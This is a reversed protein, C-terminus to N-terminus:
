CDSRSCKLTVHSGQKVSSLCEFAEPPDSIIMIDKMKKPLAKEIVYALLLEMLIHGPIAVLLAVATLFSAEGVFNLMLLYRFAVTCIGYVPLQFATVLFFEKAGFDLLMGSFFIGAPISIVLPLLVSYWSFGGFFGYSVYLCLVIGYAMIGLLTPLFLIRAIKGKLPTDEDFTIQRVLQDEVDFQFDSLLKIDLRDGALKVRIGKLNNNRMDILLYRKKSLTHLLIGDKWDDTEDYVSHHRCFAKLATKIDHEENFDKQIEAAIDAFTEESFTILNKM